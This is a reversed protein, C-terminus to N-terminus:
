KDAPSRASSHVIDAIARQVPSIWDAATLALNLVKLRLSHLRADDSVDDQKVVARFASIFEAYAQPNINSLDVFLFPPPVPELSSAPKAYTFIYPGGSMPGKCLYKMAETPPNCVHDLIARAIQYDYFAESYGAGLKTQENGSSQLLDPFDAMKEKKIPIYFINLQARSAATDEIPPISKFIEGLFAASRSSPSTLVAYSYLGYGAEEKGLGQLHGYGTELIKAVIEGSSNSITVGENNHIIINGAGTVIKGSAIGGSQPLCICTELLCTEYYNDPCAWVAKTCLIVFAMCFFFARWWTGM